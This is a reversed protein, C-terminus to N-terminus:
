KLAKFLSSITLFFKSFFWGFFYNAFKWSLFELMNSFFLLLLLKKMFKLNLFIKLFEIMWFFELNIDFYDGPPGPRSPGPPGLFLVLYRWSKTFILVSCAFHKFVIISCPFHTRIELLLQFGFTIISTTYLKQQFTWVIQLKHIVTRSLKKKWSVTNCFLM